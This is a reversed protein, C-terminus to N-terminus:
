PADGLVRDLKPLIDDYLNLLRPEILNCDGFYTAISGLLSAVDQDGAKMYMVHTIDRTAGDLQRQVAYIHSIAYALDSDIYALSQTALAVDWASYEMFAPHTGVFPMGLRERASPDATLYEQISKLGVVHHDRVAAVAERNTAFESRFRHLSERAVDRHQESERWQEGMLGLFVGASILVVELAIRLLSKQRSWHSGPSSVAVTAQEHDDVM